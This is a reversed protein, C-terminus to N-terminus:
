PTSTTRRAGKRRARLRRRYLHPTARFAGHRFRRPVTYILSECATPHCGQPASTLHRPAAERRALEFPEVMKPPLLNRAKFQEWRGNQENRYAETKTPHELAYQNAPTM